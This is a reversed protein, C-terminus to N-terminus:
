HATLQFAKSKSDFRYEDADQSSLQRTQGPQDITTGSKEIHILPFDKNDQAKFSLKGTFKICPSLGAQTDDSCGSSNDEGSVINGAYHWRNSDSEKWVIEFGSVSVGGGAQSVTPIALFYKGDPTTFTEAQRSKDIADAKEYAGFEGIYPEAGLLNWPKEANAEGQQFTAEALTVKTDPSPTADADAPGYHDPTQYIFGTFYRKGGVKYTHGYWYNAWSGNDVEYSASGDGKNATIFYIVEGPTPPTMENTMTQDKTHLDSAAAISATVFANNNKAQNKDSPQCASILLASTMMLLNKTLTNM